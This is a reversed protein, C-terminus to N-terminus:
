LIYSYNEKLVNQVTTDTLIVATRLKMNVIHSKRSGAKPISLNDDPFSPHTEEKSTSTSPGPSDISMKTAKSNSSYAAATVPPISRNTIYAGM